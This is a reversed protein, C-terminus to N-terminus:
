KFIYDFFKKFASRNDIPTYLEPSKRDNSIPLEKELSTFFNLRTEYEDHIKHYDAMINSVEVKQKEIENLLDDYKLSDSTKLSDLSCVFLPKIDPFIEGSVTNFCGLYYLDYDSPFRNILSSSYNVINQVQRIADSESLAYFPFFFSGIKKDFISYIFQTNTPCDKQLNKNVNFNTVNENCVQSEHNMM